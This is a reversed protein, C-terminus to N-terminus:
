GRSGAAIPGRYVADWNKFVPDLDRERLAACFSAVDREDSIDFQGGDRAAGDAYGGVTTRSAVSMKCIGTGAIGDRFRCSERTSLNLPVDPMCVRFAFILQALTTDGVPDAAAYDGLQPRIRPFSISVGSQWFTRRLHEAHRFLCLMDRRADCLGLLVGLGVTRIGAALAEEPGHLRREYHVKPGWRHLPFYTEVDYTEQYLAVSTCGAESLRRYEDRRMTFSEVAVSNFTAAVQEVSRHLYEFDADKTRDGTLLLVEDFGMERLVKLERQLESPSLKKRPRELDSSFGCYVCGSSCYDALYLPVYLMITRGFHRQTLQRAKQAMQELLGQAAPSILAAFDAVDPTDCTLARRVRSEDAHEALEIWAGPDLWEPLEVPRGKYGKRASNM